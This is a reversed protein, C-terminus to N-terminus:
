LIHFYTGYAIMLDRWTVQMRHKCGMQSTNPKSRYWKHSFVCQGFAPNDLPLRHSPKDVNSVHLHMNVLLVCTSGSIYCGTQRVHSEVSIGYYVTKQLTHGVFVPIGYARSTAKPLGLATLNEWRSRQLLFTDNRDFGWDLVDQPPPTRPTRPWILVQFIKDTIVFQYQESNNFALVGLQRPLLLHPLTRTRM